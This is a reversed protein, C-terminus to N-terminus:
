RHPWHTDPQGARLPQGGRPGLHRDEVAVKLSGPSGGVRDPPLSPLAVQTIRRDQVPQGIDDRVDHHVVGSELQHGRDM